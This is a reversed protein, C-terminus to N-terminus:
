VIRADPLAYVENAEISLLCVWAEQVTTHPELFPSACVANGDM